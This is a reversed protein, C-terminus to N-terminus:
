SSSEEKSIEEQLQEDEIMALAIERSAVEDQIAEIESTMINPNRGLMIDKFSPPSGNYRDDPNYTDTTVIGLDRVFDEHSVPVAAASKSKQNIANCYRVYGDYIEDIFKRPFSVMAKPNNPDPIYSLYGYMPQLNPDMDSGDANKGYSGRKKGKAEEEDPEKNVYFMENETNIRSQAAPLGIAKSLCNRMFEVGNVGNARQRYAASKKTADDIYDLWHMHSEVFGHEMYELMSKDDYKREPAQEYLKTRINEKIMEIYDIQKQVTMFQEHSLHAIQRIENVFNYYVSDKSCDKGALVKDGKVLRVNMRPITVQDTNLAKDRIRKKMENIDVFRKCWNDDFFKDFEEDSMDGHVSRSLRKIVRFDNNDMEQVSQFGCAIAYNYRAQMEPSPYQVQGFNYGGVSNIGAMFPNTSVMNSIPLNNAPIRPMATNTMRRQTMGNPGKVEGNKPMPDRHNDNIGPFMLVERREVMQGRPDWGMVRATNEMIQDHFWKPICQKGGMSVDYFEDDKPALAAYPDFGEHFGYLMGPEKFDTDMPIPARFGTTRQYDNWDKMSDSPNILPIMPNMPNYVNMMFPTYGMIPAQMMGAMPTQGPPMFTTPQAVDRYMGPYPNLAGTFQYTPLGASQKVLDMPNMEINGKEDIEAVTPLEDITATGGDSVTPGNGFYSPIIGDYVMQAMQPNEQLMLHVTPSNLNIGEGNSRGAKSNPDLLNLGNFTYIDSTM